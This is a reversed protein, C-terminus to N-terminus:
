KIILGNKIDGTSNEVNYLFGNIIVYKVKGDKKIVFDAPGEIEINEKVDTKENILINIPLKSYEPLSNEGITKAAKLQVATFGQNYLEKFNIKEIQSLSDFDRKYTRGLVLELGSFDYDEYGFFVSLDGADEVYSSYYFNKGTDANIEERNIGLDLLFETGKSKFKLNRIILDILWEENNPISEYTELSEVSYNKESISKFSSVLAIFNLKRIFQKEPDGKWGGSEILITSTGWKQFNDGFARPEFEDSYKAIHGPIFSSLIRFLEATLKMAKERVNDITKESNISPALFSLAASKFSNGASYRTSQDHLNFGFEAKLSDFTNKLIRAEPMQQRVADRNLDVNFINRRQYIEAGDPNVMPMFYITVNELLKKKFDSFRSNDSFFNFIDFIAMTATPEDGHMQSWLFIKREGSGISILFINRGEASEGAKKVKFINKNLKEIIPLLDSHKFRKHTISKEKFNEYDYYLRNAFDLDQ